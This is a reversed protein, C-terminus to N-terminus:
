HSLNSTTNLEKFSVVGCNSPIVRAIAKAMIRQAM